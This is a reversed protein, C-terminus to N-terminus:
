TIWFGCCRRMWLRRVGGRYWWLSRLVRGRGASGAAEAPAEEVVRARQDREGRVLEGGRDAARRQAAVGGGGGGGEGAARGVRHAPEADDFHLNTPIRGHELALVVKIIGAVGAAAQPTGWLQDEGLRDGGAPGRARPGGGAGRGAGAGRDSRGAAHGHRPVRRLEVEAPRVGAQALARRIVAEQSPGNPATLGNSRGDQNVASGRIVALVRHGDRQADSLRELVLM